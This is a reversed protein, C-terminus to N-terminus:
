VGALNSLSHLHCKWWKRLDWSSCMVVIIWRWLVVLFVWLWHNTYGLAWRPCIVFLFFLKEEDGPINQHHRSLKKSSYMFLTDRYGPEILWKLWLWYHQTIKLLPEAKKNWLMPLGTEIYFMHYWVFSMDRIKWVESLILLM